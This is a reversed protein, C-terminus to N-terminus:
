SVEGLCRDLFSPRWDVVGRLDQAIGHQEIRSVTEKYESGDEQVETHSHDIIESRFSGTCVGILIDREQKHIFLPAGSMGSSVLFSLEFGPPHPHLMDEPHIERQIYGKLARFNLRIATPDGSKADLPYGLTAVDRWAGVTGLNEDRKPTRLATPCQYRVKGCAIDWPAPPTEAARIRAVMSKPSKGGNEKVVLGVEHGTAAAQAYADDLVHKATLFTGDTDIFFATGALKTITATAEVEQFICVPVIYTQLFMALKSEASLVGGVHHRSNVNGIHLDCSFFVLSEIPITGQATM